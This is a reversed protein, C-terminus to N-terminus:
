LIQIEKGNLNCHLIDSFSVGHISLVVVWDFGGFRVLTTQVYQVRCWGAKLAFFIDCIFCVHYFLNFFVFDM